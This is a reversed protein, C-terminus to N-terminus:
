HQVRPIGCINIRWVIGIESISLFFLTESNKKKKIQSKINKEENVDSM